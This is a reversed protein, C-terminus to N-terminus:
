LMVGTTRLSIRSLFGFIASASFASAPSARCRSRHRPEVGADVDVLLRRFFHGFLIELGVPQDSPRPLRAASATCRGQAAATGANARPRAYSASGTSTTAHARRQRSSRIPTAAAPERVGAAAITLAYAAVCIAPRPRSARRSNSPRRALRAPAANAPAAVRSASSPCSPCANVLPCAPTATSGASSANTSPPRRRASRRCLIERRGPAPSRPPSARRCRTAHSHPRSGNSRRTSHAPTRPARRADGQARGVRLHPVRQPDGFIPPRAALDQAHARRRGHQLIPRAPARMRADGRRQERAVAEGARRRQRDFACSACCWQSSRPTRQRMRSCYKM